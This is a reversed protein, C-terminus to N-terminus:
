RLGKGRCAACTIKGQGSCRACPQWSKGEQIENPDKGSGGCGQCQVKGSGGCNSCPNQDNNIM